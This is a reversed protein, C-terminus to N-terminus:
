KWTQSENWLVGFPDITIVIGVAGILAGIITLTGARDHAIWAGLPIAWLPMSYVIVSAKGSPVFQLGVASFVSMLAIQLVGSVFLEAREQRAPLLPLRLCRCIALCVITAGFFRLASLTLPGIDSVASRILPFNAAWILVITLLIEWPAKRRANTEKGM